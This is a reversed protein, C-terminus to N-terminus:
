RGAGVQVFEVASDRDKRRGATFSRDPDPIPGFCMINAGSTMQDGTRGFVRLAGGINVARVLQEKEGKADTM